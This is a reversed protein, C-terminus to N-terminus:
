LINPLMAKLKPKFPLNLINIEQYIDKIWTILVLLALEILNVLLLNYLIYGRM